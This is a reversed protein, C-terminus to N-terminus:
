VTGEALLATGGKGGLTAVAEEARLKTESTSPSPPEGLFEGPAACVKNLRPVQSARTLGYARLHPRLHPHIRERERKDKPGLVKEM